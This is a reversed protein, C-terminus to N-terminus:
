YTDPPDFEQIVDQHKIGRGLYNEVMMITSALMATLEDDLDNDTIGLEEKIDDLTPFSEAVAAARRTVRCSSHGDRAIWVRLDGGNRALSRWTYRTGQSCSTMARTNRKRSSRGATFSDPHPCVMGAMRAMAAMADASACSRGSHRARM